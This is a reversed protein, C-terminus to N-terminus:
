VLFKSYAVFFLTMVPYKGKVNRKRKANESYEGPGEEKIRKLSKSITSTSPLKPLKFKKKAWRALEELTLKPHALKYEYITQQDQKSLSINKNM